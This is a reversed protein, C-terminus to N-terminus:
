IYLSKKTKMIFDLIREDSPKRRDIKIDTIEDGNELKVDDINVNRCRELKEALEKIDYYNGM